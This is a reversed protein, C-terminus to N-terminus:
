KKKKAARMPSKKLPTCKACKGASSLKNSPFPKKCTKCLPDQVKKKKRSDEEVDDTLRKKGKGHVTQLVEVDNGSVQFLNTFIRFFNGIGGYNRKIMTALPRDLRDNVRSMVLKKSDFKSLIVPIVMSEFTEKEMWNMQVGDFEALFDELKSPIQSQKTNVSMEQIKSGHFTDPSEEILQQIEPYNRKILAIPNKKTACKVPALFHPFDITVIIPRTDVVPAEDFLMNIFPDTVPPINSTSNQDTQPPSPRTLPKKPKQKLDPLLNDWIKTYLKREVLHSFILQVLDTQTLDNTYPISLAQCLVVLRTAVMKAISSYEWLFKLQDIVPLKSIYESLSQPTLFTTQIQSMGFISIFNFVSIPPVIKAL